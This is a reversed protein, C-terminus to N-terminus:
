FHDFPGQPGVTFESVPGANTEGNNIVELQWYYHMGPALDAYPMSLCSTTGLLNATSLNSNTGLYVRFTYSSNTIIELRIEDLHVNLLGMDDAEVFALRITQGIFDSVDCSRRTWESLLPDGAKTSFLVMLVRDALDRIEVRFQQNPNEYNLAFNRLRDAWSLIACAANHPLSV